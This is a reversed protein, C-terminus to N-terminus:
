NDDEFEEVFSNIGENEEEFENEEAESSPYDNNPNNESNSDEDDGYQYDEDDDDEDLYQNTDFIIGNAFNEGYNVWQANSEARSKMKSFLSKSQNKIPFTNHVLLKEKLEVQDKKNLLKRTSNLKLNRM